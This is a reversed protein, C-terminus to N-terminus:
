LTQSLQQPLSDLTLSLHAVCNVEIGQGISNDPSFLLHNLRSGRGTKETFPWQSRNQFPCPHRSKSTTWGANGRGVVVLWVELIGQLITKSLSDYCTVHGFLALKWRKVTALLSEQPGVFFNIKSQVRVSTKHELYSIHLLAICKQIFPIPCTLSSPIWPLVIM